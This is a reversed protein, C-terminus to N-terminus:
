RINWTTGVTHNEFPTDDDPNSSLNFLPHKADKPDTNWDETDADKERAAKEADTLQGRVSL